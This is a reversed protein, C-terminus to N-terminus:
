FEARTKIDYRRALEKAHQLGAPSGVAAGKCSHTLGPLLDGKRQPLSNVREIDFAFALQGADIFDSARESQFRRHGDPHIGIHIGLRMLENGCSLAFIFKADADVPCGLNVLNRGTKGVQFDPTDLCM